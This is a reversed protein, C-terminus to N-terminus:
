FADIPNALRSSLFTQFPSLLLQLRLPSMKVARESVLGILPPPLSPFLLLLSLVLWCGVLPSKNKKAAAGKGKRHSLSLFLSSLTILRSFLTSSSFTVQGGRLSQALPPLGTFTIASFIWIHLPFYTAGSGLIMFLGQNTKGFKM